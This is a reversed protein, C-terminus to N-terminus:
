SRKPIKHRFACDIHRHEQETVDATTRATGQYETPFSAPGIKDFGPVPKGIKSETTSLEKRPLKPRPIKIVGAKAKDQSLLNPPYAFKATARGREVLDPIYINSRVKRAILEEYQEKTLSIKFYGQSDFDGPGSYPFDVMIEAGPWPPPDLIPPSGDEFLIRGYYYSPAAVKVPRAQEKDKTLMEVPFRM